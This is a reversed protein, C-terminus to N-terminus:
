NYHLIIMLVFHLYFEKSCLCTNWMLTFTVLIQTTGFFPIIIFTLAVTWNKLEEIIYTYRVRFGRVREYLCDLASLWVAALMRCEVSWRIRINCKCKCVSVGFAGKSTSWYALVDGRRSTVARMHFGSFFSEEYWKYRWM